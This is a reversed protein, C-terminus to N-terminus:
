GTTMRGAYVIPPVPPPSTNLTSSSRTMAAAADRGAQDALDQDLFGHEAPLLQLELDHAVGLVLHDGDAEDLVDIRHAHVGAIGEAGRRHQRDVRLELLPQLLVGVVDDLRDLDDAARIDLERMVGLGPRTTIISIM